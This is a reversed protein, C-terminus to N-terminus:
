VEELILEDTLFPASTIVQDGAEALVTMNEHVLSPDKTQLEKLSKNLEKLPDDVDNVANKQDKKSINVKRFCNIVTEKSVDNWASVLLQMANLLLIKPIPKDQDLHTLIVRVLRKRYHAKLFRKVGQDM